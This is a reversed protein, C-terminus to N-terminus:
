SSKGRSSRTSAVAGERALEALRETEAVIQPKSRRRAGTRVNVYFTSGEDVDALVTWESASLQLESLIWESVNENQNMIAKMIGRAFVDIRIEGHEGSADGGEKAPADVRSAATCM